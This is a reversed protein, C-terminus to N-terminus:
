SNTVPVNRKLELSAQRCDARDAILMAVGLNREKLINFLTHTHTHGSIHM